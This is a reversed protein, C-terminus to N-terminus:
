KGKQLRYDRKDQDQHSSKKNYIDQSFQAIMNDRYLYGFADGDDDDKVYDNLNTVMRFNTKLFGYVALANESVFIMEWFAKEFVSSEDGTLKKQPFYAPWYGNVVEHLHRSSHLCNKWQETTIFRECFQCYINNFFTM